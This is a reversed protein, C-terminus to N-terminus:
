RSLKYQGARIAAITGGDILLDTGTIFDAHGGLLAIVPKNENRDFVM